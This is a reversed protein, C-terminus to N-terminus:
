GLKANEKEKELIHRFHNIRKLNVGLDSHGVRSASRMHILKNKYDIRIEFDDVFRFISSTYTASIYNDKTSKIVGGSLMIANNILQVINTSEIESFPIAQTFHSKDEPYETCICNPTDPCHALKTNDLERPSAMQSQYGLYFFYILGAALILSLIILIIKM